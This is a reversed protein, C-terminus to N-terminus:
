KKFNTNIKKQRRNQITTTTTAIATATAASATASIKTTAATVTATTYTAAVATNREEQQRQRRQRPACLLRPRWPSLPRGLRAPAVVRIRTLACGLSDMRGGLSIAGGLHAAPYTSNTQGGLPSRSSILTGKGFAIFPASGIPSISRRLGM